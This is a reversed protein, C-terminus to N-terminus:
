NMYNAFYGINRGNSFAMNQCSKTLNEDKALILKFFLPSRFGFPENILYPIVASLWKNPIGQAESAQIDSQGIVGVTSRLALLLRQSTLPM